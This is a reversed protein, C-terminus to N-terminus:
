KIVLKTGAPIKNYNELNNSKITATVNGGNEACIKCLDENAVKTTYTKCSEKKSEQKNEEVVEVVKEELEINEKNITQKKTNRSAM